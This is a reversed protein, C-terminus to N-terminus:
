QNIRRINSTFINKNIRSLCLENCLAALFCARPKWCRFFKWKTSINRSLCWWSHFSRNDDKVRNFMIEWALGKGIIHNGSQQTDFDYVVDLMKYDDYDQSDYKAYIDYTNQMIKEDMAYWQAAMPAWNVWSMGKIFKM